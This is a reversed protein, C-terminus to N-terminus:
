VRVVRVRLQRTGRGQGDLFLCHTGSSPACTTQLGIDPSTGRAADSSGRGGCERVPLYRIAYAIVYM